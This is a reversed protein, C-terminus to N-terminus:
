GNVLVLYAGRKKVGHQTDKERRSRRTVIFVRDYMSVKHSESIIKISTTRKYINQKLTAKSNGIHGYTVSSQTGVSFASWNIVRSTRPSVPM